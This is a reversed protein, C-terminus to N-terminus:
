LIKEQQGFKIWIQDLFKELLTSNIPFKCPFLLIKKPIKGFWLLFCTLCIFYLDPIIM